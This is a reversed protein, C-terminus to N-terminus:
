LTHSHSPPPPDYNSHSHSHSLPLTLLPPSPSPSPFYSPSPHLSSFHFPSLSPSPSPSPFLSPSPSALHSDGELTCADFHSPSPFHFHAHSPSHSAHRTVCIMPLCICTSILSGPCSLDFEWPALGTRWIMEFILHIRVLLNDIFLERERIAMLPRAGTWPRAAGSTIKTYELIETIYSM